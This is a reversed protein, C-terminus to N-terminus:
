EFPGEFLHVKCNKWIRKVDAFFAKHNPYVGCELNEEIDALSIPTCGSQQLVDVYDPYLSTNVPLLFPNADRHRKLKALLQEGQNMWM